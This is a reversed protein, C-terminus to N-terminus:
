GFLFTKVDASLNYWNLVLSGDRKELPRIAKIVSALIFFKQRPIYHTDHYHDLDLLHFGLIRDLAIDERQGEVYGNIHEEKEHGITNHSFHKFIFAIEATLPKTCHAPRVSTILYYQGRILSSPDFM